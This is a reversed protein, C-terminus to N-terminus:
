QSVLREPKTKTGIRFSWVNGDETRVTASAGHVVIEVVTSAFSVKDLVNIQTSTAVCTLQSGTAYCLRDAEGNALSVDEAISLTIQKRRLSKEFTCSLRKDAGLVCSTEASCMSLSAPAKGSLACESPSFTVRRDLNFGEGKDDVICSMPHEHSLQSVKGPFPFPEAAGKPSAFCKVNGDGQLACFRGRGSAVMDVVQSVSEVKEIGKLLADGFYGACYAEGLETWVCEAVPGFAAGNINMTFTEFEKLARIRSFTPNEDGVFGWCETRNNRLRCAAPTKGTSTDIAGRFLHKGPKGDDFPVDNKSVAVVRANTSSPSEAPRGDGCGAFLVACLAISGRRM